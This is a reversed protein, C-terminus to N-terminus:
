ERDIDRHFIKVPIRHEQLFRGLYEVVAVSRHKGGTCGIALRIDRKRAALHQKLLFLLFPEVLKIFQRGTDNELVYECVQTELGTHDKLESIWFPNPLFRVDWVMEAEPYGHKFGFSFITIEVHQKLTVPEM